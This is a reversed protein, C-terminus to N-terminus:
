KKRAAPDFNEILWIDSKSEEVTYVFRHGDPSSKFNSGGPLTLLTKPDGGGTPVALIHTSGTTSNDMAYLWNGDPSWGFPHLNKGPFITKPNGGMSPVLLISSRDPASFEDACIWNGDPSWGLPRLVMKTLLKASNDALSIVWLGDQPHGYVAFRKGDPSYKPSSLQFNIVGRNNLPKEEETEPNLITRVGGTFYFIHTGPSWAFIIQAGVQTKALQRPKGGDADVIWIKFSSGEDSIYAIRKGDPSWAPSFHAADSFTLQIPTGGEIPMKYIQRNALNNTFAIWKGDPSITPSRFYATGKTLLRIELKKDKESGTFEALWLNSFHESKWYALRTGDASLSFDVGQLGSLVVVAQGKAKGSKPDIAIRALDYNPNGERTYRMLFYISDGTASWNARGAFWDPEIVKRQQSGDPRVTWIASRKNDSDAVILLLNSAPSWDYLTVRGIGNVPVERSNGSLKDVLVFGKEGWSGAIQTGDPSWCTVHRDVVFRPTGGFRSILYTSSGNNDEGRTGEFLLESGDPSWRLARISFRKCLEIAQRSKMDQLMLKNNGPPGTVYALSSGDPSIAPSSAEGDFTVQKQIPQNSSSSTQGTEAPKWVLYFIVAAVLVMGGALAFAMMRKSFRFQSKVAGAQSALKGSESDEKLEELAVKLDAMNQFRRAPDKKLCRSVIRELEQPTGGSAESVPSPEQHLIAALTSIKSEGQFARRGTVMEYLVSGFSFIDSRGDVPRGEAQEPSMYAVTGIIAGKETVGEATATTAFEDGQVHEMLKALGFDLVKVTGDENVMINAPKLDRQVIGAAHAKALADAIQVAYKLSDNLRLSRRGIMQELTRGEVYEMAIFDVDQDTTIDYIHIINPHNLASAAKAEQTFRRKREADAVKEPPLVKLAVFRALHMDQAKYVVGMGGSGLKETIRYHGLTKGIM